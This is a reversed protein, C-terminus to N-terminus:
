CDLLQLARAEFLANTWSVPSLARGSTVRFLSAMEFEQFTLLGVVAMVAVWTRIPGGTRIVTSRWLGGAFARRRSLGLCMMAEAGVPPPPSFILLMTGVPVYKLLVLLGYFLENLLPHRILALSFNAYAYGVVLEPTLFPLM